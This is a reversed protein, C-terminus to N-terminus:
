NGGDLSVQPARMWHTVDHAPEGDMFFFKGDEHWASMGVEFGECAILIDDNDSPLTKKVSIWSNSNETQM